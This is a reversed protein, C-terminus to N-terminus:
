SMASISCGKRGLNLCIRRPFISRYKKSFSHRLENSNQSRSDAMKFSSKEFLGAFDPLALSGRPIFNPLIVPRPLVLVFFNPRSSNPRGLGQARFHLLYDMLNSIATTTYWYNCLLLLPPIECIFTIYM